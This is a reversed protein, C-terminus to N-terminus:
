LATHLADMEVQRGVFRTLGRAAAVQLRTRLTGAGVLEFAELPAPLGKIPLQGLSTVRVYGEVLGLVDPTLAVGGPLAVQEMRSALHVTQGMATYDMHLDDSILRVIVEGSNLGVRAQVRVGHRHRADEAYRTMGEQLALAAYCARVAHDEHAIPAGFLAMVGDGMSRSVTGEFRHVADMMVQTAGDLLHQADEADLDRILETSGVVDAFLVTVQKREGTLTSRAALIKDALHRPTYSQPTPTAAPSAPAARAHGCADCFRAGPRLEAACRSCPPALRSGCSECFAATERNEHGCAGCRM